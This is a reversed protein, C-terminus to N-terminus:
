ILLLIVILGIPLVLYAKGLHRSLRNVLLAYGVALLLRCFASLAFAGWLPVSVNLMASASFSADSLPFAGHLAITDAAFFLLCVAMSMMLAVLRKAGHVARMGRVTVCATRDFGQAYEMAYSGCFFLLLFAYLLPDGGTEFFTLWGTDYQLFATQGRASAADISGCQLSLKGYIYNDTLAAEYANRKQIYEDQSISGNQFATRVRDFETIIQESETLKQTILARKEDTLEGRLENCVTQYQQETPDCFPANVHTWVAKFALMALCLALLRSKILQKNWEAALLTRRRPTRHPLARHLRERVHAATEMARRELASLRNQTLCRGAFAFFLVALLVCAFLLVVASVLLLPVSHGFVSVSRYREWFADTICLSYPNILALASDSGAFACGVALMGASLCFSLLYSKCLSATWGCFLMLGFAALSKVAVSLALYSFISINYPCFLFEQVSCLPVFPSSLGYRVAIGILPAATFLVAFLFSSVGFVWVKTRKSANGRPTICLLTDTRHDKETMTLVIGTLAALLLLLLDDASLSFFADWGRADQPAVGRELLASYREILDNQYRVIYSNEGATYTYDAKNNEALRIVYAIEGAYADRYAQQEEPTPAPANGLLAVLFCMALLGICLRCFGSASLLKKCEFRFLRM